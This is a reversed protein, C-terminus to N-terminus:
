KKSVYDTKHLDADARRKKIESIVAISVQPYASNKFYISYNIICITARRGYIEDFQPGGSQRQHRPFYEAIDIYFRMVNMFIGARLGM